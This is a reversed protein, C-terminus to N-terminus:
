ALMQLCSGGFLSGIELCKLTKQEPRERACQLPAAYQAIKDGLDGPARGQIKHRIDRSHEVAAIIDNITLDPFIHLAKEVAHTWACAIQAEITEDAPMGHCSLSFTPTEVIPFPHTQWVALGPTCWSVFPLNVLNGRYTKLIHMLAGNVRPDEPPEAIAYTNDFVVLGDPDLKDHVITFEQLVDNMAHSGDLFAFRIAHRNKQLVHPLELLSNGCHVSVFSSLGAKAINDVANKARASDIEFTHVQGQRKTDALAQALIITSCGLNAGTEVILNFKNPDLHCILLYYLAGWGPYGLTFGTKGTAGEIDTVGEELSALYENPLLRRDYDFQRYNIPPRV